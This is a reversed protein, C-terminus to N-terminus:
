KKREFFGRRLTNKRSFSRFLSTKPYQADLIKFFRRKRSPRCNVRVARGPGTNGTCLFGSLLRPSRPPILMTTPGAAQPRTPAPRYATRNGGRASQTNERCFVTFIHPPQHRKTANQHRKPLTKADNQCRKPMTKADNQCSTPM